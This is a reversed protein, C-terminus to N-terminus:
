DHWSFGIEQIGINELGDVCHNGERFIHAVVINVSCTLSVYNFWHNQLKWPVVIPNKFALIVLFSDCELWLHVWDKQFPIEIAKIASIIKALLSIYISLQLSFCGMFSDRFTGGCTALHPTGRAICLDYM